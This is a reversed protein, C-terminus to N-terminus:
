DLKQEDKSTKVSSVGEGGYGHTKAGGKGEERTFQESAYNLFLEDFTRLFWIIGSRTFVVM